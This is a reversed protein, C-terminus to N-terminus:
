GYIKNIAIESFELGVMEYRLIDSIFDSYTLPLYRENLIYESDSNLVIYYGNINFNLDIGSNLDQIIINEFCSDVNKFNKFYIPVKNIDFPENYFSLAQKIQKLNNVTECFNTFNLAKM